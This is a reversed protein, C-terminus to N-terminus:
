PERDRYAAVADAAEKAVAHLLMGRGHTDIGSHAQLVFAEYDAEAQDAEHQLRELETQWDDHKKQQWVTPDTAQARWKMFYMVTNGLWSLISQLSIMHDGEKESTGPGGGM